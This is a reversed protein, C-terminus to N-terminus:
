IKGQIWYQMLAFPEKLFYKTTYKAPQWCPSFSAPSLTYRYQLKRAVLSARTMHFPESVVIVSSNEPLKKKAFLFNEYTSSASKELVIDRPEVGNEIAIKKMTEAENANDEKDNGGSVLLMPAYQDKYLEVAHKVRAELCPNYSGSIYSRAGLVLIVDSKQKTDLTAQRAVNVALSSYFTLILLLVAIAALTLRKVL